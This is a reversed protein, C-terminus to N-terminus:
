KVTLDELAIALSSYFYVEQKGSMAGQIAEKTSGGTYIPSSHPLSETCIFGYNYGHSTRTLIYPRGSHKGRFAITGYHSDIDDMTITEQDDKNLIIKRKSM